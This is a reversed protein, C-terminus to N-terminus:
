AQTHREQLISALQEPEDSGLLFRKGWKLKIAVARFGSVNYLWGRGTWHIGWGDVFQTQTVQADYVDTLSVQKSIIGPGFTWRLHRDTVEISLSSFLYACALCIGAVGLGIYARPWDIAAIILGLVVSLGLPWVIAKGFQRHQYRIMKM